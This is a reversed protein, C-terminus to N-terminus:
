ENRTNKNIVIQGNINYDKICVTVDVVARLLYLTPQKSYIIM